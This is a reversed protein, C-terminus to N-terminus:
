GNKEFNNIVNKLHDQWSSFQPDYFVTDLYLLPYSKKLELKLANLDIFHEGEGFTAYQTVVIVKTKRNKRKIENLIDVGAMKRFKHGDEGSKIDFTPLQMDLLVLQFEAQFLAKLGSQYSRCIMLEYYKYNEQLFIELNKTKNTDDEILLCKM